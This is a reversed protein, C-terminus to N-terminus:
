ATRRSASAASPLPPTAGVSRRRHLGLALAGAAFLLAAAPEPVATINDVGLSAAIDEGPFVATSGHYLRLQTVGALTDAAAGGLAQASLAFSVHTWGGGAPLLVPALSVATSGPAGALWLRLSLETTGFNNLDMEIGGVGAALYDGLWDSGALAVLKGGPGHVGSATLLLYGDGAGAPGGTAVLVPPNPNFDGSAWGETSSGEFGSAQGLMVAWAPMAWGLCLAACVGLKRVIAM